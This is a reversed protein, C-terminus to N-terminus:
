VWSKLKSKLYAIQKSFCWTLVDIAENSSVYHLDANDLSQKRSFARARVLYGRIVKALLRVQAPWAAGDGLACITHGEIQKSLEQFLLLCWLKWFIVSNVPQYNWWIYFESCQTWLSVKCLQISYIEFRDIWRWCCNHFICCDIAYLKVVFM